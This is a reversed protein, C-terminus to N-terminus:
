FIFKNTNMDVIPIAGVAGEHDCGRMKVVAGAVDSFVCIDVSSNVYRLIQAIARRKRTPVNMRFRLDYLVGM